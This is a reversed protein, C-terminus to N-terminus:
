LRLLNSVPRCNEKDFNENKQFIPSVDSIKLETAFIEKELCYKTLLLQHM